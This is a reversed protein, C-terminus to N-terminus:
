PSKSDRPSEEAADAEEPERKRKTSGSAANGGEGDRVIDEAALAGNESHSGNLSRARSLVRRSFGNNTGRVLELMIHLM